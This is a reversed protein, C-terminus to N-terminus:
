KQLLTGVLAAIAVRGSEGATFTLAMGRRPDVRRVVCELSVPRDLELLAAFKAGIWLPPDLEVFIAEPSIERVRGRLKAAGWEIEIGVDCKSRPVQRREVQRHVVGPQLESM